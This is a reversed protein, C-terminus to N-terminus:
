RGYKGMIHGSSVSSPKVSKQESARSNELGVLSSIRLASHDEANSPLRNLFMSLSIAHARDTKSPVPEDRPSIRNKAGAKRDRISLSQRKYPEKNEECKHQSHFHFCHTCSAAM